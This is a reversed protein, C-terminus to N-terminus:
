KFNFNTERISGYVKLLLICTLIVDKLHASRVQHLIKPSMEREIRKNWMSRDCLCALEDLYARTFYSLLRNIADMQTSGRSNSALLWWYTGSTSFRSRMSPSGVAKKFCTDAFHVWFRVLISQQCNPVSKDAFYSIVIWFQYNVIPYKKINLWNLDLYGVFFELLLWNELLYLLLTTGRFFSSGIRRLLGFM